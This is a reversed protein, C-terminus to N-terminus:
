KGDSLDWPQGTEPDNTTLDLSWGPKLKKGGYARLGAEQVVRPPSYIEVIDPGMQKFWKAANKMVLEVRINRRAPLQRLLVEDPTDDPRCDDILKGTDADRVIRREVDAAVPGSKTGIALRDAQLCTRAYMGSGIERWKM